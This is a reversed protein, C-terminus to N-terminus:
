HTNKLHYLKISQKSMVCRNHGKILYTAGPNAKKNNSIASVKFFNFFPSRMVAVILFSLLIM